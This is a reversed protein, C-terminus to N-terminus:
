FHWSNDPNLLDKIVDTLFDNIFFQLEVSILSCCALDDDQKANTIHNLLLQLIAEFQSKHHLPFILALNSGKHSFHLFYHFLFQLSAGDNDAAKMFFHRFQICFTILYLLLETIKDIAKISFISYKSKLVQYYCMRQLCLMWRDYRSVLERTQLQLLM